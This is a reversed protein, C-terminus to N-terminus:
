AILLYILGWYGFERGVPLYAFELLIEIDQILGFFSQYEFSDTTNL